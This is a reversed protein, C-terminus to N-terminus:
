KNKELFDWLWRINETSIWSIEASMNRIIPSKIETSNTWHSRKTYYISDNWKVRLIMWDHAPLHKIFTKNRIMSFANDTIKDFLAKLQNENLEKWSNKKSKNHM